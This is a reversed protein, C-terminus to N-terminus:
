CESVKPFFEKIVNAGIVGIMMVAVFSIASM